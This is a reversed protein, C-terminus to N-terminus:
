LPTCCQLFIRVKARRRPRAQRRKQLSEHYYYGIFARCGRCLGCSESERHSDAVQTHLVVHRESSLGPVIVMPPVNNCYARAYRMQQALRIFTRVRAPYAPMQAAKGSWRKVHNDPRQAVCAKRDLRWLDRLPAPMALQRSLIYTVMGQTGVDALRSSSDSERVVSDVLSTSLQSSM